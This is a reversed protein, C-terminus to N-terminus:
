NMQKITVIDQVYLFIGKYDAYDTAIYLLVCYSILMAYNTVLTPHGVDVNFFAVIKYEFFFQM